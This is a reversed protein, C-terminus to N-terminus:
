PESQVLSKQLDRPSEKAKQIAAAIEDAAQKVDEESPDDASSVKLLKEM